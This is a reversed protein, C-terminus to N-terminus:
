AGVEAADAGREVFRGQALVLQRPFRSALDRSHTVVVLTSGRERNLDDLLTFVESATSPDLNGTPEDALLLSPSRVLARAIAVRQQEGGSLEGPKHGMRRHLGVKELLSRAQAEAVRSSQGAILAPIMVNHLADQDPLLHHFQFVFGIERNRLADLEAASRAFVDRDGFWIRGSTPRDLTGLLHLFTSKGSGSQGLVAIREGPQIQLDLGRLVELAQGGKHFTKSLGEIRILEASV